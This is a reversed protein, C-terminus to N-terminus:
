IHILSLTPGLLSGSGDDCTTGCSEDNIYSYMGGLYLGMPLIYGMRLDLRTQTSEDTANNYEIENQYYGLNPSVVFQALAPTAILASILVIVIKKM